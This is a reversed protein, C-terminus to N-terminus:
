NQGKGGGWATPQRLFSTESTAVPEISKGSELDGDLRYNLKMEEFTSEKVELNSWVGQWVQNSECEEGGRKNRVTQLSIQITIQTAQKACKTFSQKQM